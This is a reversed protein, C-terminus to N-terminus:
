QSNADTTVNAAGTDAAGNVAVGTAVADSETPSGVEATDAGENGVREGGCAALAVTTAGFAAIIAFKRM